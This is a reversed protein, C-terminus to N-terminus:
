ENFSIRSSGFQYRFPSLVRMHSQLFVSDYKFKIELGTDRLVFHIEIEICSRTQLFYSRYLTLQSKEFDHNTINSHTAVIKRDDM